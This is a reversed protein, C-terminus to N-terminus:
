ILTSSKKLLYEIPELQSEFVYSDSFIYSDAFKVITQSEQSVLVLVVSIFVLLFALFAKYLVIIVLGIPRKRRM